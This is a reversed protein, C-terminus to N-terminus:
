RYEKSVYEKRLRRAVQVAIVAGLLGGFGDAILDATEAERGLVFSQCLETVAGYLVAGMAAIIVIHPHHKLRTARLSWVLGFGLGAYMLLHVVKDIHPVSVSMPAFTRVSFYLIFGAYAIVPIWRLKKM